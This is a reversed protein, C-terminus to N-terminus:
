VENQNKNPGESLLAIKLLYNELGRREPPSM